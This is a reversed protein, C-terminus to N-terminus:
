DPIPVFAMHGLVGFCPVNGEDLRLCYGKGPHLVKPMGHLQVPQIERALVSHPLSHVNCRMGFEVVAFGYKDFEGNPRPFDGGDLNLRSGILPNITATDAGLKEAM